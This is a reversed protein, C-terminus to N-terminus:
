GAVFGQWQRMYEVFPASLGREGLEAATLPPRRPEWGPQALQRPWDPNAIAARGLAVADAGLGLVESAEEHTWLGGAAFIAIDRPLAARFLKVPHLDTYKTANRLARWLSLHVFDVGDDALWRALQLSEDLDLGKVQGFDEPSLRIGVAFSAPIRARVARVIERALRARQELAGGWADSRRNMVTSLFQTLLYGHAGHIEVGDLGAAHARAAAAAFQEIVRELDSETAARVAGAGSATASWAQKGSVAADARSGGHFIQLLSAAGRERLATALRRLGPVHSDDFCGLEGRWGQGDKAVHSACTTVVGFGGEARTALWHLEADSLTGDAHSQSNTLAALVVRNRARLGNRFQLSAALDGVGM